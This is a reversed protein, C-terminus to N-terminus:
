KGEQKPTGGDQLGIKRGSGSANNDKVYRRAKLTQVSAGLSGLPHVMGLYPAQPITPSENRKRM